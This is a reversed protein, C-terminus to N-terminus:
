PRAAEPACNGFVRESYASRRTSPLHAQIRYAACTQAVQVVTDQVLISDGALNSALYSTALPIPPWHILRNGGDMSDRPVPVLNALEISVKATSAFSPTSTGSGLYQLGQLTEDCGFGGSTRQFTTQGSPTSPPTRCQTGWGEVEVFYRDARPVVLTASFTSQGATVPIGAVALPTSSNSDFVLVRVSDYTTSQTASPDFFGHVVSQMPAFHLQLELTVPDEGVLGRRDSCGSGLVGLAFLTMCLSPLRTSM